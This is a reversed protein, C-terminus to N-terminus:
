TSQTHCPAEQASADRETMIAKWCAWMDACPQGHVRLVSFYDALKDPMCGLGVLASALHNGGILISEAPANRRGTPEFPEAQERAKWGAEFATLAPLNIPWQEPNSPLMKYLRAQEEFWKSRAARM